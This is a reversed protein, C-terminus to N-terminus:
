KKILNIIVFSGFKRMSFKFHKMLLEKMLVVNMNIVRLKLEISFEELQSSIEILNDVSDHDFKQYSEGAQQMLLNNLKKLKPSKTLIKFLLKINLPLNIDLELINIKPIKEVLQNIKFENSNVDDSGFTFGELHLHELHLFKEDINDDCVTSFNRNYHYNISIHQLHKFNRLYIDIPLSCETTLNFSILSPCNRAMREIREIPINLFGIEIRLKKLMLLSTSSLEEIIDILSSYNQEVSEIQLEELKELKHFSERFISNGLGDVNIKLVKLNSLTCITSFALDDEDFLGECKLLDVHILNCQKAMISSLVPENDVKYRRLMLQLHTLSNKIANINIHDVSLDLEKVNEQRALIDSPEFDISLKTLVNNPLFAEFFLRTADDCKSIKLDKLFPLKLSEIPEDFFDSQLKWTICQLSTLNPFFNLISMVETRTFKCSEWTLHTVNSGKIFCVTKLQWFANLTSIQNSNIAMEKFIRQSFM